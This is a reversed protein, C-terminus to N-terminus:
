GTAIQSGGGVAEPNTSAQPPPGLVKINSGHIIAPRAWRRQWKHWGSPYKGDPGRYVMAMPTLGAAISTNCRREASEQTDGDYGALVYARLRHLIEPPTLWETCKARASQHSSLGM